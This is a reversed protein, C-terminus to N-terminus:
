CCVYSLMYRWLALKRTKDPLIHFCQHCEFAKDPPDKPPEPFINEGIRRESPALKVFTQQSEVDEELVLATAMTEYTEWTCGSEATKSPEHSQATKNDKIAHKVTKRQRSLVQADEELTVSARALRKRHARQYYFQQRRMTTVSALRRVLWPPTDPCLGTIKLSVISKFEQLLDNGEADKEVHAAARGARFNRSSGRILISVDFLKDVLSVVEQLYSGFPNTDEPQHSIQSNRGCLSTSSLSSNSETESSGADSDFHIWQNDCDDVVTVAILDSACSKADLGEKLSQNLDEILAKVNHSLYDADKLRHDLSARGRSLAGINSAWIRFRGLEDEAAASSLERQLGDKNPTELANILLHFLRECEVSLKAITASDDM